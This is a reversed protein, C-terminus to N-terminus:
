SRRPPAAAMARCGPAAAAALQRLQMPCHWAAEPKHRSLEPATSWLVLQLPAACFSLQSGQPYLASRVEKKHHLCEFYDEKM